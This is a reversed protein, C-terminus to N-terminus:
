RHNAGFYPYIYESSARTKRWDDHHKPKWVGNVEVTRRGIALTFSKPARKFTQEPSALSYTDKCDVAKTKKSLTHYRRLYTKPAETNACLRSQDFNLEFLQEKASIMVLFM